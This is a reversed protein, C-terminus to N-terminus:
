AADTRREAISRLSELAHTSVSSHELLKGNQERLVRTAEAEVAHAAKWAAAEDRKDQVITEYAKVIRDVHTGPVLTGRFILGLVTFVVGGLIAWPGGTSLAAPVWDM